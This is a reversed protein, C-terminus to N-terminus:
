KGKEIEELRKQTEPSLTIHLNEMFSQILKEAEAEVNNADNVLYGQGGSPMFYFTLLHDDSIPTSYFDEWGQKECSRFFYFPLDNFIVTKIGELTGPKRRGPSIKNTLQCGALIWTLCDNRSLMSQISWNHPHRREIYMYISCGGEYAKGWLLHSSFSWSNKFIDKSMGRGNHWEKYDEKYLDVKEPWFRNSVIATQRPSKFRVVAGSINLTRWPARRFNPM